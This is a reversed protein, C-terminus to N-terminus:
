ARIEFVDALTYPVTALLLETVGDLFRITTVSGMASGLGIQMANIGGRTDTPASAGSISQALVSSFQVRSSKFGLTNVNAINDGIVDMRLQHNRLGSAGAFLSRMM